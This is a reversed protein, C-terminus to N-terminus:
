MDEDNKYYTVYSPPRIVTRATLDGKKDYTTLIIMSLDDDYEVSNCGKCGVEFTFAQAKKDYPNKATENMEDTVKQAVESPKIKDDQSFAELTKTIFIANDSKIIKAAAMARNKVVLKPYFYAGLSALALVVFVIELIVIKKM